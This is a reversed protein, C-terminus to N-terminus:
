TSMPVAQVNFVIKVRGVSASAPVIITSIPTGPYKYQFRLSSLPCQRLRIACDSSAIAVPRRGLHILDSWPM